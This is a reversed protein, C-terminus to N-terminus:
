GLGSIILIHVRGNIGLVQGLLGRMARAIPDCSKGDGTTGSVFATGFHRSFEAFIM